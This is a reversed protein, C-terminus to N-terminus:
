RWFVYRCNSSLYSPTVEFPTVDLSSSDSLRFKISQAVTNHDIFAAGASKFRLNNEAFISDNTGVTIETGNVDVNGAFTAGLTSGFLSLATRSTSGGLSNNHPVSFFMNADFSNQATEVLNIRGFADGGSHSYGLALTAVAAVTASHTSALVSLIRNTGTNLTFNGPTTSNNGSFTIPGNEIDAGGTSWKTVTGATGTGNVTGAGIDSLVEAATRYKILGDGNPVLFKGAASTENAITAVTLSGDISQSSLFSIAM